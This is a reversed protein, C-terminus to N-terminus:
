MPQLRTNEFVIKNVREWDEDTVVADVNYAARDGLM